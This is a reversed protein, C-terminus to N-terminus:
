TLIGHQLRPQLAALDRLLPRFRMPRRSVPKIRCRHPAKRHRIRHRYRLPFACARANYVESPSEVDAAIEACDELEIRKLVADHPAETEPPRDVRSAGSSCMPLLRLLTMGATCGLQKPPRTLLVSASLTVLGTSKCILTMREERSINNNKKARVRTPLLLRCLM